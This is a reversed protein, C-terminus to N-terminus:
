RVRKAPLTRLRRSVSASIRVLFKDDCSPPRKRFRHEPFRHRYTRKTTATATCVVVIVMTIIIMFDGDDGDDDDIIISYIFITLMLTMKTILMIM